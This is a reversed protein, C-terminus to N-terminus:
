ELERCITEQMNDSYRPIVLYRTDYESKQSAYIFELCEGYLCANYNYSILLVRRKM